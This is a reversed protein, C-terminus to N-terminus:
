RPKHRIPRLTRPVLIGLYRPVWVFWRELSLFGEFIYMGVDRCGM